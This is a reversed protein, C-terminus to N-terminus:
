NRLSATHIGCEGGAKTTGRWRGARELEQEDLEPTSCRMCGLSRYGDKYVPNVPIDFVALYRWIDQETFNLIPNIKTLGDVTEIPKFSARTVGETNRIGALWANYGSLAEKTAQVKPTGCCQEASGIQEFRHELYNLKYDNAVKKAFSYTEPFETDAMIAFVPIDKKVSLALHLVVMSDKGFSCGCTIRPYQEVAEEILRKAEFIKETFTM